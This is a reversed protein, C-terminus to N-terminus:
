TAGGIGTVADRSRGPLLRVLRPSPVLGLEVGILSRFVDYQRLADIVNGEALYVSILVANSTERLPEARVAELATQLALDVDRRRLLVAAARELAHLRLQQLRDREFMVWDDYWGPLLSRGWLVSLGGVVGDDDLQGRLLGLAFEEQERSDVSASESVAVSGGTASLLGPALRNMRWISTRLSALAHEDSVDPWLTGAVVCRRSPGRLALFAVLRELAAPLVLPADDYEFCFRDLLRVRALAM